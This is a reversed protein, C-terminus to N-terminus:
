PVMDAALSRGGIDSEVTGKGSESDMTSPAELISGTRVLDVVVPGLSILNNLKQEMLTLDSNSSLQLVSM